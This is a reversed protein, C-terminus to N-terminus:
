DFRCDELCPYRFNFWLGEETKCYKCTKRLKHNLLPNCRTSCIAGNKPFVSFDVPLCDCSLFDTLLHMEWSCLSILHINVPLNVRWLVLHPCILAPSPNLCWFTCWDPKRQFCLGWHYNISSCCNSLQFSILLSHVIRIILYDNWNNQPLNTIMLLLSCLLLKFIM